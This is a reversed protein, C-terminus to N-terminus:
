IKGVFSFTLLMLGAAASPLWLLAMGMWQWLGLEGVEYYIEDMTIHNAQLHGDKNDSYEENEEGM